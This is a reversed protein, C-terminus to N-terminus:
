RRTWRISAPSSPPYSLSDDTSRRGASRSRSRQLLSPRCPCFHLVAPLSRLTQPCVLRPRCSSDAHLVSPQRPAAILPPPPLAGPLNPISRIQAFKLPPFNLTIRFNRIVDTTLHAVMTQRPLVNFGLREIPQCVM